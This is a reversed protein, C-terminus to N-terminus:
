PSREPMNSSGNPCRQLTQPIDGGGFEPSNKMIEAYRARDSAKTGKVGRDEQTFEKPWYCFELAIGNPDTFYPSRAWCHDHIEPSAQFESMDHSVVDSCPIGEARLHAVYEEIKDAPVQIAVHNMSAVARPLGKDQSAIGPATPPSDTLWFFALTDGNGTDFFFHQGAGCLLDISKVMPMGLKNQYFDVNEEMDNAVLALHHLGQFEFEKNQNPHEKSM